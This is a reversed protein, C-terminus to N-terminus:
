DSGAYDEVPIEGEPPLEPSPASVELADAAGPKDMWKEFAERMSETFSQAGIVEVQVPNATGQTVADQTGDVRGIEDDVMQMWKDTSMGQTVDIGLSKQLLESTTKLAGALMAAGAPDLSFRLKGAPIEIGRERAQKLFVKDHDAEDIHVRISHQILQMLATATEPIAKVARVRRLLLQPGLPIGEKELEDAVAKFAERYRKERTWARWPLILAKANYRRAECFAYWDQADSALYEAKIAATDYGSSNGGKKPFGRFRKHRRPQPVTPASAPPLAPLEDAVHTM